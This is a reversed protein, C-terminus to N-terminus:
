WGPGRGRWASRTPMTTFCNPACTTSAKTTARVSRPWAPLALCFAMPANPTFRSRTRSGTAFERGNRVRDRSRCRARSCTSCNPFKTSIPKACSALPARNRREVDTNSPMALRGRTERGIRKSTADSFATAYPREARPVACRGGTRLPTKAKLMAKERNKRQKIEEGLRNALDGALTKFRDRQAVLERERRELDVVKRKLAETDDHDTAKEDKALDEVHPENHECPGSVTDTSPLAEPPPADRRCVSGVPVDAKLRKASTEAGPDILLSVVDGDGSGTALDLATNGYRSVRDPDANARLLMAVVPAHGNAAAAMLMTTGELIQFNPDAGRKLARAVANADGKQAAFALYASPNGLSALRM